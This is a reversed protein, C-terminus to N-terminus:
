SVTKVEKIKKQGKFVAVEVVNNGKFALRERRGGSIEKFRYRINKGLPMM